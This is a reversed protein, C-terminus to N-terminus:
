PGTLIRYFRQKNTAHNDQIFASPAPLNTILLTLWNSLPISLNTSTLVIYNSGPVGGLYFGFQTPSVRTPQGVTPPTSITSLNFTTETSALTQGVAGPYGTTNTSLVRFFFVTGSYDNGPQLTGAPITASTATGKLSSLDDTPTSFVQNGDLDVIILWINDNTTGGAYADWQVTFDHGSNITQAAAYNSIHPTSPYVPTPLYLVPFINGNDLTFLNFTYNGVPYTADFTPEDAFQDRNQLGIGTSGDPLGIGASTPLTVSATPVSGLATQTLGLYANFPGYDTDPIVTAADTQFFALEKDLYYNVVDPTVPQVVFDATGNSNTISVNQNNPPTYNGNGLINDLSDNGGSSNIGVTWSNSNAVNLSYNGNNDTDMFANFQVGNFSANAYVGVGVVNTGNFSVHGIIHNTALYATFNQLYAQGNTLVTSSQQSFIYNTPSSDSPVGISWNGALTGAVYNGNADTIGQSEYQYNNDQQQASLSIGALPHNLNDKVSGYFIATEKPVANTVGSVSGGTTDVKTSNQFGLYGYTALGQENNEIKWQNANVRETFNGNTDTFAVTLLGGQTQAPVLFGAIGLTSNNADVIRGSISQTAVLLSLNTTIPTVGLVLNAAASTSAVYNSKLAALTYTGPPAKITYSGANNAVADGVVQLNGGAANFLLVIANSLTTATGNSVVNGTFSGAYPFNTVMFQNNTIATFHNVPSYLRFIYKGSIAQPSGSEFVMKAAITGNATGDTDGPVNFNTVVTTNNHYLSQQGDTLQFQQWLVDGADIVGNTNADLYGQLVVTETNTLGTVQFTIVGNYTNSVAAPTITFSVAARTNQTLAAFLTLVIVLSQLNFKM